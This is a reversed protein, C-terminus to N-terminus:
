SRFDAHRGVVVERVTSFFNYSYFFLVQHDHTTQYDILPVGLQAENDMETQSKSLCTNDHQAESARIM